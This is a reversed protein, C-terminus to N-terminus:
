KDSQLLRPFFLLCPSLTFGSEYFIELITNFSSNSFSTFDTYYSENWIKKVPIILRNSM